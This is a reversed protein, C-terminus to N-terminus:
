GFDIGSLTLWLVFADRHAAEHFGYHLREPAKSTWRGCRGAAIQRAQQDAEGVRAAAASATITVVHPYSGTRTGRTSALRQRRLICGDHKPQQVCGAASM